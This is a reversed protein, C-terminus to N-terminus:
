SDRLRRRADDLARVAFKRRSLARRLYRDLGLLEQSLIIALKKPGALRPRLLGAVMSLPAAPAASLLRGLISVNERRAARTEYYPDLLKDSLLHHRVSRVRCIDIQAEAVRRALEMIEPDASAGAIDRALTEVEEVLVPDAYVPLALGHRLANRASRRRGAATKPGTSARANARNARIKAASTM